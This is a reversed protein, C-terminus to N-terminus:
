ILNRAIFSYVELIPEGSIQVQQAQGVFSVDMLKRTTHNPQQRSMDGYTILIDIAPYQDLRRHSYVDEDSPSTGEQINNAFLKDRTLPNGTDSGYWVVDEFAEAWNEFGNDDLKGLQKVLRNYEQNAVNRDKIESNEWSFMQEVNARLVQKNKAAKSAGALSFDGNPSYGQVITGQEDVSYRPSHWWGQEQPRNPLQDDKNIFGETQLYRQVPWLLYGSEKFAIVLEGSVLVNGDAVFAYYQSNYGFVPARNQQVSYSISVASDILVDGFYVLVQAGGFYDHEYTINGLHESGLNDGYIDRIAM